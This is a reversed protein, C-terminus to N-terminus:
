KRLIRLNSFVGAWIGSDDGVEVIVAYRFGHDSERWTVVKIAPKIESAIASLANRTPLDVGVALTLKCTELSGTVNYLVDVELSRTTPLIDGKLRYVPKKKSVDEEYVHDSIDTVVLTNVATGVDGRAYELYTDRLANMRLEANWAMMPPNVQETLSVGGVYELSETVGPRHVYRSGHECLDSYNKASLTGSLNGVFPSGYLGKAISEQYARICDLVPEPEKLFLVAFSGSSQVKGHDEDDKGHKGTYYIHRGDPALRAQNSMTSFYWANQCFLRNYDAKFNWYGKAPKYTTVPELLGKSALILGRTAQNDATDNGLNGSHGMVWYMQVPVKKDDLQGVLGYIKKWYEVNQVPIGGGKCWNNKVWKHMHNLTGELVYKSDAAVVVSRVENELAVTLASIMGELEGINNTGNPVPVHSDVMVLPKVVKAGMSILEALNNEDVYGHTTPTEKKTPPEKVLVELEEGPSTAYIYAHLGGGAMPPTWRCGGDSYAVLHLTKGAELAKTLESM